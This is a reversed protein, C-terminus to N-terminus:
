MDCLEVMYETELDRLQQSIQMIQEERTGARLSNNGRGGGGGPGTYGDRHSIRGDLQQYNDRTANRQFLGVRM